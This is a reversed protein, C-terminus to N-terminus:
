YGLIDKLVYKKLEPANEIVYEKLTKKDFKTEVPGSNNEDSWTSWSDLEATIIVNGEIYKMWINIADCVGPEQSVFWNLGEDWYHSNEKKCIEYYRDFEEAADAPTDFVRYSLYDRPEKREDHRYNYIEVVQKEEGEAKCVDWIGVRSRRGNEPKYNTAYKKGDNFAKVYRGNSSVCSTLLGAMVILIIFSKILKTYGTKKMKRSIM